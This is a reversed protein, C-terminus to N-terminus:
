CVRKELPNKAYKGKYVITTTFQADQFMHSVACTEACSGTICM